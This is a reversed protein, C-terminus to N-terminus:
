GFRVCRMSLSGMELGEYVTTAPAGIGAAAATYLLPLYHDPTPVSQPGGPLKDYDILAADDKDAALANACPKTQEVGVGFSGIPRGM